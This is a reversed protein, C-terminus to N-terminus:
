PSRWQGSAPLLEVDFGAATGEVVFVESRHRGLAAGPAGVVVGRQPDGHAHVNGGVHQGARMIAPPMFQFCAIKM